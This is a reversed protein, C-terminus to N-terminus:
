CMTVVLVRLRRTKAKAPRIVREARGNVRCRGRRQGQSSCNLRARARSRAMGSGAQRRGDAVSGGALGVDGCVRALGTRSRRKGHGIGGDGEGCGSYDAMPAGLLAQLGGGLRGDVWIRVRIMAGTVGEGRGSDERRGDRDMPPNPSIRLTWKAFEELHRLLVERTEQDILEGASDFKMPGFAAIMVGPKVMVSAGTEGLVELLQMQARATGARGGAGVITASKGMLSGDGRDRSAWDIANKLVGSTGWNYEPTAFLVGDSRRIASKLAAVPEPDGEAEVDGNYLPIDKLDFITVEKGAPAIEQAARLLGTNFSAKRLSGSIGLINLHDTTTRRLTTM